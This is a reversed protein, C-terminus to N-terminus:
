KNRKGAMVAVDLNISSASTMKRQGEVQLKGISTSIHFMEPGRENRM